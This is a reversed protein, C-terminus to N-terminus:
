AKLVRGGHEAAGDVALRRSSRRGPAAGDAFSPVAQGPPRARERGSQPSSAVACSSVGTSRGGIAVTGGPSRVVMARAKLEEPCRSSTPSAMGPRGTEPSRSRGDVQGPVRFATSGPRQISHWAAVPTTMKRGRGVNGRQGRFPPQSRQPRRPCRGGEPSLSTMERWRVGWSTWTGPPPGIEPQRNRPLPSRRWCHPRRIRRARLVARPASIATTLPPCGHPQLHAAWFGSQAFTAACSLQGPM